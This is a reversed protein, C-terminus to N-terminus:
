NYSAGTTLVKGREELPLPISFVSRDHFMCIFLNSLLFSTPGFVKQVLSGNFPMLGIPPIGDLDQIRRIVQSIRRARCGDWYTSPVVRSL